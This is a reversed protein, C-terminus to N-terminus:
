PFVESDQHQPTCAAGAAWRTAEQRGPVSRAPNKGASTHLFLLCTYGLRLSVASHLSPVRRVSGASSSSDRGPVVWCRLHTLRRVARMGCLSCAPERGECSSLARRPPVKRGRTSTSVTSYHERLTRRERTSPPTTGGERSHRTRRRRARSNSPLVKAGQRRLTRLMIRITYDAALSSPQAPKKGDRISATVAYCDPRQRINCLVSPIINHFASDPCQRDFQCGRERAIIKGRPPWPPYVLVTLQCNHLPRLARFLQSSVTVAKGKLAHPRTQTLLRAARPGISRLADALRHCVQESVTKCRLTAISTAPRVNRLLRCVLM